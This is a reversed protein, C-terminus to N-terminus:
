LKGYASYPLYVFWFLAVAAAVLIAAFALLVYLKTRSIPMTEVEPVAAAAPQPASGIGSTLPSYQFSIGSTSPDSQALLSAAPDSEMGALATPVTLLSSGATVAQTGLAPTPPTVASLGFGSGSASPAAAASNFLNTNFLFSGQGDAAGGATAGVLESAGRSTFAQVLADCLQVVEQYRKSPDREMARALIADVAKPLRPNVETPPLASDGGAAPLQRTFMKYFTVGLSYVDARQDVSGPDTAQEPSMYYATGVTAMRGSREAPVGGEAIHAIGFDGVKVVGQRNVLINSPKIDRHIIGRSHVYTLAKSIEGIIHLYHQETLEVSHLLQDLTIGEVIEMVFFYNNDVVGKDIINVINPHNLGALAGAEQDFRKIFTKNRSFRRALVKVAVPRNLSLQTAKYVTAMGGRGLVRRIEFGGLRTGPELPTDPERPPPASGGTSSVSSGSTVPSVGLGEISLPAAQASSSM